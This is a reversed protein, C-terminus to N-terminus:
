NEELTVTIGDIASRMRAIPQWDWGIVTSIGLLERMHCNAIARRMHEGQREAPTEHATTAQLLTCVTDIPVWREAIGLSIEEATRDTNGRGGSWFAELYINEFRLMGNYYERVIGMPEGASVILGLEERCEREACAQLSEPPEVGGGPLIYQDRGTM